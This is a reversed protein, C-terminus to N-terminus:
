TLMRFNLDSNILKNVKMLVFVKSSIILFKFLDIHVVVLTSM